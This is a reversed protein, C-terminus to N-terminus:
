SLQTLHLRNGEPDILHLVPQGKTNTRIEGDVNVGLDTLRRQHAGIDDVVFGFHHLGTRWRDCGQHPKPHEYQILEIVEAELGKLCAKRGGKPHPVISDVSLGLADRYFALMKEFDVVTIGIHVLSRIV